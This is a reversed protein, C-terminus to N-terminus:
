QHQRVPFASLRQSGRALLGATISSVDEPPTGRHTAQLRDSDSGTMQCAM